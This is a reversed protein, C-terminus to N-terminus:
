KKWQVKAFSWVKEISNFECSYVPIPLPIFMKPIKDRAILSTHSRHADYLLVPKRGKLDRVQEKVQNMFRMYDEKNTSRATMFMPKKLCKGIAGFVTIGLRTSPRHHYVIDSKSSWSKTKMQWTNFTTEDMYILPVKEEILKAIIRSFVLREKQLTKELSKEKRYIAKGTKWAIDNARYFEWLLFHSPKYNTVKHVLLAREVLSYPAWLQLIKKNLLM